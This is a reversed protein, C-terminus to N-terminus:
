RKKKRSKPAPRKKKPTPSGNLGVHQEIRDLRGLISQQNVELGDVKVELRDVKVELNDVKAELRKQGAVLALHGDALFKVQTDINELLVEFRAREETTM